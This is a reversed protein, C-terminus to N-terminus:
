ESRERGGERDRERERGEERGGQGEGEGERGGERGEEGRERRGERGGRERGGKRARDRGGGGERKYSPSSAVSLSFPARLSLFLSFWRSLLENSVTLSALSPSLFCTSPTITNM